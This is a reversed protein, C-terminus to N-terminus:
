RQKKEEKEREHNPFEKMYESLKNECHTINREYFTKVELSEKLKDKVQNLLTEKEGIIKREMNRLKKISDELSKKAEELKNNIKMENDFPKTM